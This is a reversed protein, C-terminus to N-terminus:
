FNRKNQKMGNGSGGASSNSTVVNSAELSGINAGNVYLSYTKGKEINTNSIIIMSYAKETKFSSVTNGSSDKLAVEDGSNGSNQFILSNQTSNSSPNQAMGAAGYIVIDGGTIVCEGDYDLAGNGSNTPGAVLVTGGKIYISGNSDLGDGSADVTINGNNIVLKKDTDSISSFSNQGPRGNMSSSDNGGAINIGDDSAIVNITGGNIEIYGSEIGEYSKAVDINGSNITISTDAHIGDDGSSAKITGDNIVIIGNSHVSDDTSTVVIDGGNITIETGAKLGKSSTIEGKTTINIKANSSINLITEAQIGDAESNITITGEEIAIYGFEADETNTSKIGDGKSTINLNANNIAVYDKGRIGDDESNIEINSNIIKLGDKSVIGDSYNADVVLKGNGNIVLDTKTFIAGDPETKETDTFTTYSSSDTITNTSNDSLTITLKDATIGNIPATQNSTISANDLVLQVEDNKDAEILINGDSISGTIYYTGASNITIANGNNTVGKGEVITKTDDLTIKAIYNSWEGTLEESNYEVELPTGKTDIQVYNSDTDKKNEYFYCIIFVIILAILLLGAFIKLKKENM